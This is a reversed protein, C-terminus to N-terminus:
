ETTPAAVCCGSIIRQGDDSEGRFAGDAEVQVSYTFRSGSGYRVTCRWPNRIDGSGGPTCRAATAETKRDPAPEPANMVAREVQDPEVRLPNRARFEFAPDIERNALTVVSGAIGVALLPGVLLLPLWTRM